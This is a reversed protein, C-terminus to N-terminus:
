IIELYMIIKLTPHFIVTFDSVAYLIGLKCLFLLASNDKLNQRHFLHVIFKQVVYSKM